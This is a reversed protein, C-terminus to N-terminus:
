EWINLVLKLSEFDLISQTLYMDSLVFTLMLMM